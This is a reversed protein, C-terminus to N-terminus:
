PEGGGRLLSDRGASDGHESIIILWANILSVKYRSHALHGQIHFWSWISLLQVTLLAIPLPDNLSPACTGAICQWIYDHTIIALSYSYIAACTSIVNCPQVYKFREVRNSMHFSCSIIYKSSRRTLQEVYRVIKMIWSPELSARFKEM